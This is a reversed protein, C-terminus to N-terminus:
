GVFQSDAVPPFRARQFCADHGFGGCFCGGGTEDVGVVVGGGGGRWKGGGVEEVQFDEGAGAAYVGKCVGVDGAGDSLGVHEIITVKFLTLTLFRM